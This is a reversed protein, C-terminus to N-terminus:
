LPLASSWLVSVWSQFQTINYSYRLSLHWVVNGSHTLLCFVWVCTSYAYIYVPTHIPLISLYKIVYKKQAGMFCQVFFSNNYNALKRNKGIFVKSMLLIFPSQNFRNSRLPHFFDLYYSPRHILKSGEEVPQIM